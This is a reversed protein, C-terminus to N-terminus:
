HTGSAVRQAHVAMTDSSNQLSGVVNVYEPLRMGDRHRDVDHLTGIIRGGPKVLRSAEEFIKCVQHGGECCDAASTQVVVM